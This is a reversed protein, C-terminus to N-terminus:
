CEGAFFKMANDGLGLGEEGLFEKLLARFSQSEVPVPLFPDRLLFNSSWGDACKCNPDWCSRFLDGIDGNWYDPLDALWPFLRAWLKPGALYLCDHYRHLRHWALREPCEGVLFAQIMTRRWVTEADDSALVSREVEAWEHQAILVKM